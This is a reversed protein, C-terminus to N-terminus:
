SFAERRQQCFNQVSGGSWTHLSILHIWARCGQADKNWTRECRLLRGRFIVNSEIVGVIGILRNFAEKVRVIGDGVISGIGGGLDDGSGKLDEKCSAHEEVISFGPIALGVGVLSPGIELRVEGQGMAYKM